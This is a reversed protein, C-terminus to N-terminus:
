TINRPGILGLRERKNIHLDFNDFLTKIGIDKSANFISILV